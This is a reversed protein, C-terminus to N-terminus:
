VHARGIKCMDVIGRHQGPTLFKRLVVRLQGDKVYVGAMDCVPSARLATGVHRLCFATRSTPAPM